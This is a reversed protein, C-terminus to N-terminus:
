EFYSYVREEFIVRGNEDKVIAKIWNGINDYEYTYHSCASVKKDKDYYM